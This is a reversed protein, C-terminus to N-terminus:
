ARPLFFGDGRRRSRPLYPLNMSSCFSSCTPACHAPLDPCTWTRHDPRPPTPLHPPLVDQLMPWAGCAACATRHPLAHEAAHPFSPHADSHCRAKWWSARWRDPGTRCTRQRRTRTASGRGRRDRCVQPRSAFVGCARTLLIALVGHEQTPIPVLM